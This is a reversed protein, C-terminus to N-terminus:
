FRPIVGVALIRDGHVAMAEAIEFRRNVTVIKGSRLILDPTEIEAGLDSPVLIALIITTVLIRTSTKM